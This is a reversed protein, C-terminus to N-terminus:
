TTNGGVNIQNYLLIAVVWSWSHVERKAHKGNLLEVTDQVSSVLSDSKSLFGVGVGVDRDVQDSSAFDSIDLM